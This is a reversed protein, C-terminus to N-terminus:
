QQSIMLRCTRQNGTVNGVPITTSWSDDHPTQDVDDSADELSSGITKTENDSATEDSTDTNAKDGSDDDEVHGLNAWSFNAAREDRAVLETLAVM